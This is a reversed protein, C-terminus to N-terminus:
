GSVFSFEINLQDESKGVTFHKKITYLVLYPNLRLVYPSYFYTVHAACHSCM